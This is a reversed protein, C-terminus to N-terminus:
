AADLDIEIWEISRLEGPRQFVMPALRLATMCYPHGGYSHVARLLTAVEKPETISVYHAQPAVSLADRLDATVDREALGAAVAFKFVPGCLQKIKHASEIAGRAEIKQLAKLVDTPKIASIPM